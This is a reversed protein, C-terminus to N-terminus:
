KLFIKLFYKKIVFSYHSFYFRFFEMLSTKDINKRKYLIEPLFIAYLEASTNFSSYIKSTNQLLWNEALYRNKKMETTIPPLYKIYESKSWWFNGSYYKYHFPPVIPDRYYCGYADYTQLVKLACNYREFIFYEMMRRWANANKKLQKFDKSPYEISKEKQYSIGKTHFYYVYFDDEQAKNYIFELAPYEYVSMDYGIYIFDIKNNTDVIKKIIEVDNYEQIIASIYLTKTQSLLGSEKLFRIQETVLSTWDNVCLIHYVGIIEKKNIDYKSEIFAKPFHRVEFLNKYLTRIRENM